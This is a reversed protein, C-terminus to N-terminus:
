SQGDCPFILRIKRWFSKYWSPSRALTQGKGLPPLVHFLSMWLLLSLATTSLVASAGKFKLAVGVPTASKPPVIITSPASFPSTLMM